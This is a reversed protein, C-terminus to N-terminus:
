SDCGGALVRRAILEWNDAIQEIPMGLGRLQHMVLEADLPALLADALLRVDGAVGASRLLMMVHSLSLLYPPLEYRQGGADEAAIRVEGEVETRALRARGFAVLREVPEAGPGLPPPGFMFAQQLERESHDLLANMLGARSGFRRFVTGKGVGARNAVADMTVACVGREAVLEAAAELLLRRNRAADGRESSEVTLAPFGNLVPLEPSSM